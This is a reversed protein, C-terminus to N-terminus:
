DVAQMYQSLQDSRTEDCKMFIDLQLHFHSEPLMCLVCCRTPQGQDLRVSYVREKAALL